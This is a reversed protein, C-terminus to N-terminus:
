SQTKEAAKGSCAAKWATLQEKSLIGQADKEMRAMSEKTCGGKHCEAALTEMKGKQEATLDLNAFTASCAGKDNSAQHACCAKDGAFVPSGAFLLATIFALAKFKIM